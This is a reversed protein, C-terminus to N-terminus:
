AANEREVGRLQYITHGHTDFANSVGLLSESHGIFLHGEPKILEAFRAFLRRQTPKDFYIVVNRCWIMDFRTDRRLPWADALLNLQRFVIHERLEPKVKYLDESDDKSRLFASRRTAEPIGDVKDSSYIGKAASALVNTDIDTALQRFDFANRTERQCQALTIALSYPEEGTSCGAHWIKLTPKAQGYKQGKLLTPVIETRVYDFHHQERFFSTTNTTLCNIMAEIESAECAPDSVLNYYESFTQCSHIQLRRRLRSQVLERKSSNMSIGALSYILDRFLGFEKETLIVEPM